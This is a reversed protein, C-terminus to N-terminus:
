EGRVENIRVTKKAQQFNKQTSTTMKVIVLKYKLHCVIGM